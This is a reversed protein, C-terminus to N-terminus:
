NPQCAYLPATCSSHLLLNRNFHFCTIFNGTEQKQHSDSLSTISYYHRQVVTVMLPKNKDRSRCLQSVKATFHILKILHYLILFFHLGGIHLDDELSILYPNILSFRQFCKKVTKNSTKCQSSDKM